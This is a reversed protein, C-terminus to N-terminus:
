IYKKRKYNFYLQILTTKDDENHCHHHNIDVIESM